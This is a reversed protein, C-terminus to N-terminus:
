RNWKETPIETLEKKTYSEIKINFGNKELIAKHKEAKEIKHYKYAFWWENCWQGNYNYNKFNYYLAKTTDLLSYLM